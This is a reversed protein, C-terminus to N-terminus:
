SSALLLSLDHENIQQQALKSVEGTSDCAPHAEQLEGRHPPLVTGRMKLRKLEPMDACIGTLSVLNELWDLMLQDRQPSNFTVHLALFSFCVILFQWHAERGSIGQFDWEDDSRSVYLPKLTATRIPWEAMEGHVPPVPAAQNKCLAQSQLQAGSAQESM